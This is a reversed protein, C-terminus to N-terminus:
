FSNKKSKVVKDIRDHEEADSINLLAIYGDATYSVQFRWGSIKHIYCEYIDGVSKGLGKLKHLETHPFRHQRHCDNDELEALTALLDGYYKDPLKKKTEYLVGNDDKLRKIVAM